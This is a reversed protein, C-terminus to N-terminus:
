GSRLCSHPWAARVQVADAAAYGAAQGGMFQFRRCMLRWSDSAGGQSHAQLCPWAAQPHLCATTTRQKCDFCPWAHTHGALARVHAFSSQRLQQSCSREPNLTLAPPSVYQWAWLHHWCGLCHPPWALGVAMRHHHVQPRWSHSPVPIHHQSDYCLWLLSQLVCGSLMATLCLRSRM